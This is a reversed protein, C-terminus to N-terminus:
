CFVDIVGTKSSKMIYKIDSSKAIRIIDGEHDRAKVVTPTHGIIRSVLSSFLIFSLTDDQLFQERIKLLETANCYHIRFCIVRDHNLPTDNRIPSILCQRHAHEVWDHEGNEFAEILMFLKPGTPKCDSGFLRKDDLVYEMKNWYLFLFVEVYNWESVDKAKVFSLWKEKDYHQVLISKYEPQRMFSMFCSDKLQLKVFNVLESLAQGDFGYLHEALLNQRLLQSVNLEKKSGPRVYTEIIDELTTARKESSNVNKLNKHDILFDIMETNQIRELYCRFLKLYAENSLVQEFNVEKM